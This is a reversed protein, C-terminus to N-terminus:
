LVSTSLESRPEAGATSSDVPAGANVELLKAYLNLWGYILDEAFADPNYDLEIRVGGNLLFLNFMLDFEIRGNRAPILAAECGGLRPLDSIPEANFTVSVPGVDSQARLAQYDACMEHYPFGSHVFLENMAQKTYVLMSEFSVNGSHLPVLPLLNVCTGVIRKEEPGARNAFPIGIVPLRSRFIRNLFIQFNCLLWTFPTARDAKAKELVSATVPEEIVLTARAGRRAGIGNGPFPSGRVHDKEYSAIREMVSHWFRKDKPYRDSQRYSSERSLWQAYPVDRVTDAAGDGNYEAAVRELLVGLGWGDCVLHHLCLSLLTTADEFCYVRARVNQGSEVGLRENQEQDLLREFAETTGHEPLRVVEVFREPAPAPHQVGRELDFRYWLAPPRGLAATVARTLRDVDVSADFRLGYCLNCAISGDAASRELRYFRQQADALAHAAEAPANAARGGEKLPILNRPALERCVGRIATVLRDLDEPGHATSLFCNRGEWIYIGADMLHYFFLDINGKSSFRFLSSFHEVKIDVGEEDFVANLRESLRATNDNLSQYLAPGASKIHQLVAMSAALTLPHKSFTGAFFVTPSSPYGDDDYQWWGGDIGDLYPAAGAVVGIPMGGGLIKGYTCIDARVGFYEQAGGPACRFGTIIEDFILAIGHEETLRRLESLFPGPAMSPARSQVPEVLVAALEGRHREIYQLASPECYDLVITDQVMSEPTGLSAPRTGGSAGARALFGDFTGHYSNKFIVIKNRGTKARALRVATMTAETGSNCFTVRQHGTLECILEAVEGSIPAQPGLPIGRDLQQKLRTVIFDPSHGFLHAGFGMTFDVYPEGDIGVLRAGSAQESLIPYVVQKLLPRFGASARNDALVHRYAQTRQKSQPTKQNFRAALEGIHRVKDADGERSDRELRSSFANFRDTVAEPSPAPAPAPLRMAGNHDQVAEAAPLDTREGGSEPAPARGGGLLSLQREMLELQYRVIYELSQSDSPARAVAEFVAPSPAAAPVGAATDGAGGNAPAAQAPQWQGHAHIYRALKTITNINEYIDGVTLSVRYRRNIEQLAEVLILSDAGMESLPLDLVINEAAQNLSHALERAIDKAIREVVETSESTEQATM